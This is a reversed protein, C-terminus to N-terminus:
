FLWMWTDRSFTTNLDSIAKHVTTSNVESIIFSNDITKNITNLNDSISENSFKSALDQVSQIFFLNFENAVQAPDSINSGEIKLEYKHNKSVNFNTLNNIQKWILKSNGKAETFM